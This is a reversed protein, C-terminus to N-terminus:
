YWGVDKHYFEGYPVHNVEGKIEVGKPTFAKRGSILVDVKKKWLGKHEKLYKLAQNVSWGSKEVLNKVEFRIVGWPPLDGRIDQAKKINARSYGMERLVKDQFSFNGSAGTAMANGLSAILSNLKASNFDKLGGPQVPSNRYVPEKREEPHLRLVRMIDELWSFDNTAGFDELTGRSIGNSFTKISGQLAKLNQEGRQAFPSKGDNIRKLAHKVAKDIIQKTPKNGKLLHDIENQTLTPVLSPIEIEKGDIGVEISLETSIYGDPRKLTGLFGPGKERTKIDDSFPKMSSGEPFVPYNMEENIDDSFTKM